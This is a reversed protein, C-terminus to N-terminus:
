SKFALRPFQGLEFVFEITNVSSKLSFSYTFFFFVKYSLSKVLLRPFKFIKTDESFISTQTSAHIIMISVFFSSLVFLSQSLMLCLCISCTLKVFVCERTQCFINLSPFPNKGFAVVLPLGGTLYLSEKVLL